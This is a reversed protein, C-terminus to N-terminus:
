ARKLLKEAKWVQQGTWAESRDKQQIKYEWFPTTGTKFRRERVWVVSGWSGDDHKVRLKQDIEYKPDKQRGILM